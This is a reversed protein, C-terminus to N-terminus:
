YNEYFGVNMEILEKKYARSLEYFKKHTYLYAKYRTMFMFMDPSAMDPFRVIGHSQLLVVDDGAWGLVGHRTRYNKLDDFNEVCSLGHEPCRVPILVRFQGLEFDEILNWKFFLSKGSKAVSFDKWIEDDGFPFIISFDIPDAGDIKQDKFYVANMDKAYNVFQEQQWKVHTPESAHLSQFAPSYAAVNVLKRTEILEIGGTESKLCRWLDPEFFFTLAGLYCSTDYRRNEEKWYVQGRKVVYNGFVPRLDPTCKGRAGDTFEYCVKQGPTGEDDPGSPSLYPDNCGVLGASLFYILFYFRIHRNRVNPASACARQIMRLHAQITMRAAGM